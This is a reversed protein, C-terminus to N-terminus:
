RSLKLGLTEVQGSPLRAVVAELRIPRLSPRRQVFVEVLYIELKRYRYVIRGEADVGTATLDAQAAAAGELIRGDVTLVVDADRSVRVDIDLARVRFRSEEDPAVTIEAAVLRNIAEEFGARAAFEQELMDRWDVAQRQWRVALTALVLTPPLVVTIALLVVVLAVGNDRRM